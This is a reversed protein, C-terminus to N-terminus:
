FKESGLGQKERLLAAAERNFWAAAEDMPFDGRSRWAVEESDRKQQKAHAVATFHPVHPHYLPGWTDLNHNVYFSLLPKSLACALHVTGSDVGIVLDASATLAIYEGVSTEPSLGIDINADCLPKLQRYYEVGTKSNCLLFRINPRLAAHVRNLLGATEEAPVCKDPVSGQPAVFVLIQGPQGGWFPLIGDQLQESVSLEPLALPLQFYDAFVSTRLHDVVHSDRPYPCYFDYNRINKLSYYGKHSRKRFIMVAQPALVSSSIINPSDFHESFDLFLQWKKRQKLYNAPKKDILEDILPSFSFVARNRPTVLVGLKLHPYVTKLQKAYALNIVADGVADGLPRILISEVRHFDFDPCTKKQGCFRIILRKSFPIGM